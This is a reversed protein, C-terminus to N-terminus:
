NLVYVLLIAGTLAVRVSKEGLAIGINNQMLQFDNAGPVGM